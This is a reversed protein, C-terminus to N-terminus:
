QHRVAVTTGVRWWFGNHPCEAGCCRALLYDPAGVEARGCGGLQLVADDLHHEGRGVLNCRSHTVPSPLAPM